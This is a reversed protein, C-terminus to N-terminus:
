SPLSEMNSKYQAIYNTGLMSRSESASLICSPLVYRSVCLSVSLSLRNMPHSRYHRQNFLWCSCCGGAVRYRLLQHNKGRSQLRALSCLASTATKRINSDREHITDISVALSVVMTAISHSCSVTGFSEFPLGVIKL